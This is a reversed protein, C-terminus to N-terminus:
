CRKEEEPTSAKAMAHESRWILREPLNMEDDIQTEVSVKAARVYRLM